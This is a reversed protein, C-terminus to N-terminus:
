KDQWVATAVRWVGAQKVLTLRIKQPYTDVTDSGVLHRRNTTVLATAENDSQNEWDISIVKTEYGEYSQKSLDIDSKPEYKGYVESFFDETMVPRLDRINQFNSQNSYTGWRETFYRVTSLLESEVAKVEKKKAPKSAKEDVPLNGPSSIQNRTSTEDKLQSKDPVQSQNQWYWYIIGTGAALLVLLIVITIVTKKNM